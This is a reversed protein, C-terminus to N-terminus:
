LSSSQLPTCMRRFELLVKSRIRNALSPDNSSEYILYPLKTEIVRLIPTLHPHKKLAQAKKTAPIDSPNLLCIRVMKGIRFKWFEELESLPLGYEVAERLLESAIHYNKSQEEQISSNKLAKRLAFKIDGIMETADAYRLEPRKQLAKECIDRLTEDVRELPSVQLDLDLIKEIVEATDLNKPKFPSAGTVMEYLIVGLAYVDTRADTHGRIQEPAMYLLTGHPSLIEESDTGFRALGFDLIVPCNDQFCINEPKLDRHWVPKPRSHAYATAQAIQYEIRLAETASLKGRRGLLDRLSEGDLKEMAYWPINGEKGSALIKVIGPHNLEQLAEVEEQFQQLLHPEADAFPTKILAKGGKVTYVVGMGGVRFTDEIIYPGLQEEAKFPLKGM